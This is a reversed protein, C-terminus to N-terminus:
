GTRAARDAALEDDLEELLKRARKSLRKPIQVQVVLHLAGSGRENVRPLGKGPMSIVQGPQTGPPLEVELTAGDLMEIRVNAGLTAETITIAHQAVLDAGDREFRPHPLVDVDVYLHGPPGGAPGPVGQGAVRLRHGTDVGPPFSVTVARLKEQWGAGDCRECAEEVVMGEGGCAPCTQSFVIFGRATSVQGRGGCSGCPRRATGARCGSGNCADCQAPVRLRIEKKCGLAAEELSLTQQVRLDRGREPGRRREGRGGFGFGGFFDAFVDQFHSFLDNASFGSGVGEVGAHGFRDYRGRKDDDSLVGYAETVEKFRGDAGPEKNRDPHLELALRKYAKRIEGASADRGVGLVEYYDRKQSM